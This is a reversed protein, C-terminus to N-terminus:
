KLTIGDLVAAITFFGRPGGKSQHGCKLCETDLRDPESADWDTTHETREKCVPCHLIAKDTIGM